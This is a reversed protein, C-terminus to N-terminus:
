FTHTRGRTAGVGNSVVETEKQLDAEEETHDQAFEGCPPFGMLFSSEVAIAVINTRM